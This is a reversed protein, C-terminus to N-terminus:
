NQRFTNLVFDHDSDMLSVDSRLQEASL